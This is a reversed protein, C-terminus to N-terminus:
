GRVSTSGNELSDCSEGFIIEGLIDLQFFSYWDVINLPENSRERLCSILRDLYKIMVPEQQRLATETFSM